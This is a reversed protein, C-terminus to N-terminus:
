LAAIHTHLGLSVFETEGFLAENGKEPKRLMETKGWENM